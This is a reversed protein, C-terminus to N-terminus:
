KYIPGYGWIIKDILLLALDYTVFPGWRMPPTDIVLAVAAEPVACFGMNSLRVRHAEIYWEGGTKRVTPKTIM